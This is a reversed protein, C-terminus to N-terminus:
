RRFRFQVGWSWRGEGGGTPRSGQAGVPRPLSRPQELGRSHALDSPLKRGGVRLKKDKSGTLLIQRDELWVMQTIAKTHSDLVYLPEGTKPSWITVKGNQNGAM